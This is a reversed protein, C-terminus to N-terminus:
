SVKELKVVEPQEEIRQEEQQDATGCFTSLANERQQNINRRGDTLLKRGDDYRDQLRCIADGLQRYKATFNELDKCLPILINKVKEANENQKETIWMQKTIFMAAMITSPTVLAINRSFAYMNLDPDQATAAIYAPEIPIFLFVFDPSNLTSIKHYERKSLEDIRAKINTVLERLKDRRLTQDDSNVYERYANIPCKADILIHRRDPLNIVFDPRQAEGTASESRKVAFERVYEHNERLGWTDLIDQLVLEGWMGQQKKEYHLANALKEAEGYLRNQAETLSEISQSIRTRQAINQDNIENMMKHFENIKDKMPALISEMSNKNTSYLERGGESVIRSTVNTIKELFNEYIQKARIEEQQQKEQLARNLGRLSEIEVLDRRNAEQLERLRNEYDSIRGNLRDMTQDQQEIETRARALEIELQRCRIDTERGATKLKECEEGLQEGDYRSMELMMSLSRIRFLLFAFLVTVCILGAAVAAFLPSSLRTRVPLFFGIILIIVAAVLVTYLINLQM